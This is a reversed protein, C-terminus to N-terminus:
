ASPADQRAPHQRLIADAKEWLPGLDVVRGTDLAEDVGFVTLASTLGDEATTRPPADRLMSDALTEVLLRDGDGHGGKASTSADHMAENFGIRRWEIQGSIVDSRIAGETGLIYMRREPIGANCNTHFTARVGNAYKLIAVQNDVIDKECTFPNLESGTEWAEYPVHGEASPPLAKQLHANAKTFVDLGGFSAAREARSGVIWNVLDIDHCCKELLHTGAFRRMRRWDRMIYGGHNFDLTENFEMSVIRGIRGSEIIEKIRDYHPSYRLTFGMSFIRGSERWAKLIALCDDTTTALPKECFVHKGAELAAVAQERHFCNWSGIAVWRMAPDALFERYDTYVRFPHQFRERLREAARPSPDYVAVVRISDDIGPLAEIISALRIGYGAVGVGVFSESM